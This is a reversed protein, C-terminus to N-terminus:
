SVGPGGEEIWSQHWILSCLRDCRPEGDGQVGSCTVGALTYARELEIFCDDREDYYRDVTGSVVRLTGCFGGMHEPVYKIGECLGDEDLTRRIQEASCVRVLAGRRFNGGHGSPVGGAAYEVADPNNGTGQGYEREGAPEVGSATPAETPELWAENWFLLCGRDCHGHSLQSSDCAAGELLVTRRKKWMKDKTEDYFHELVKAVRLTRGCYKRMPADVFGLGDPTKGDNLTEQIDAYSRVRVWDGAQLGAQGTTGKAAAHRPPPPHIRRQLKTLQWRAHRKVTNGLVAMHEIADRHERGHNIIGRVQCKMEPVGPSEREATARAQWGRSAAERRDRGPPAYPRQDTPGGQLFRWPGVRIRLASLLNTM